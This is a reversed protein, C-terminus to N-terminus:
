TDASGNRKEENNTNERGHNTGRKMIDNEILYGKQVLM